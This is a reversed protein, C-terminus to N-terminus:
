KVSAGGYLRPLDIRKYLEHKLDEEARPQWGHFQEPNQMFRQWTYEQALKEVENHIIGSVYDPMQLYDFMDHYTALTSLDARQSKTSVIDKIKKRSKNKTSKVFRHLLSVTIKDLEPLPLVKEDPIAAELSQVVLSARRLERASPSNFCSITEDAATIDLDQAIVCATACLLALVIVYKM